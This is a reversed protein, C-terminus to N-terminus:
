APSESDPLADFAELVSRSRVPYTAALEGEDVLRKKLKFTGGVECVEYLRVNHARGRLATAVAHKVPSPCRMGFFVEELELPSPAEGRPGFLRWEREYRWDYAKRLLVAADVAAKADARGELMKAVLSSKVLRSGGYRVKHLDTAADSPVSYGLCLGRHQDGYHSWMLPCTPREALALIGRDYQRLLETEVRDALLRLQPAPPADSYEPNTANYAIDALVREAQLQSLREIHDMTKPGKYRITKAAARLESNVRAEVLRRVVEDMDPVALDAEVTPRTDLPDNFKSPDAFYVLDAVLLEITAASFSRYKYLRRPWARKDTM